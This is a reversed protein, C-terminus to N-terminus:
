AYPRGRERAPPPLSPDPACGQSRTQASSPPSGDHVIGPLDILALSTEATRRTVIIRDSSRFAYHRRSASVGGMVATRAQQLLPVLEATSDFAQSLVVQGGHHVVVSSRSVERDDAGPALEEQGGLRLEIVSTTTLGTGSPFPVGSLSALLSSKGSSQDGIVAIKPLPVKFIADVGLERLKNILNVVDTPGAPIVATDPGASMHKYTHGQSLVSNRAPRVETVPESQPMHHFWYRGSM